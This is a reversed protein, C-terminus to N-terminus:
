LEVPPRRGERVFERSIQSLNQSPWGRVRISRHIQAPTRKLRTDLGPKGERGRARQLPHPHPAIHASFAETERCFSFPLAGCHEPRVQYFHPVAFIIMRALDM